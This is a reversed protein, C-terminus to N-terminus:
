HSLSARIAELTTSRVARKNGAYAPTPLEALQRAVAMAQEILDDPQVAADLFGIRVAGEPDYLTGQVAAETLHDAPIRAKLLELAFVPLVMNIATENAGIKFAGHVGIRTDCSLLLFSGMAIAHGTCAAVLPLPFGYLREAMAGGARVLAGAEEASAEQLVKLDFGASFRGPRGMLVVAKATAEAEDLAANLASLLDMNVANAKGDDMSILAVTDHLQLNVSM